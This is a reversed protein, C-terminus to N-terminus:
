ITFLAYLSGIAARFDEVEIYLKGLKPKRTVPLFAGM